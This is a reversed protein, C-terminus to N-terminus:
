YADILNWQLKINLKSFTSICCNVKSNFESVRDMIDDDDKNVDDKRQSTENDSFYLQHFDNLFQTSDKDLYGSTLNFMKDTCVKAEDIAQISLKTFMETFTEDFKALVEGDIGQVINKAGM